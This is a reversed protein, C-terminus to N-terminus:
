ARPPPLEPATAASPPQHDSAAVVNHSTAAATAPAETTVFDLTLACPGMTLCSPPIEDPADVLETAMQDTTGAHHGDHGDTRADASATVAHATGALPCASGDMVFVLNALTFLSLVAIVRKVPDFTVRCRGVPM